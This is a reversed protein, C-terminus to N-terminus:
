QSWYAEVKDILTKLEAKAKSLNELADNSLHKDMMENITGELQPNGEGIKNGHTLLPELMPFNTWHLCLIQMGVGLFERMVHMNQLGATTLNPITEMSM